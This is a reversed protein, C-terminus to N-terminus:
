CVRSFRMNLDPLDADSSSVFPPISFYRTDDLLVYTRVATHHQSLLMMQKCCTGPTVIASTYSVQYLASREAPPMRRRITLVFERSSFALAGGGHELFVVSVGCAHTYRTHVQYRTIHVTHHEHIGAEFSIVVSSKDSNIPHRIPVSVPHASGTSAAHRNTSFVRCAAAHFM